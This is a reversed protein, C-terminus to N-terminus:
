ASGTVFTLQSINNEYCTKSNIRRKLSKQHYSSQYTILEDYDVTM